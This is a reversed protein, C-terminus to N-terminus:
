LLSFMKTILETVNGSPDATHKLNREQLLQAQGAALLLALLSVCCGISCTTQNKKAIRQSRRVEPKNLHKPEGYVPKEPDPRNIDQHRQNTRTPPAATPPTTQLEAPQEEVQINKQMRQYDLKFLEEARVEAVSELSVVDAM